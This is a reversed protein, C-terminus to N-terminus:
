SIARSAPCSPSWSQFVEFSEHNGYPYWGQWTENISGSFSLANSSRDRFIGVKDHFIGSGQERVGFRIEMASEAVLVALLEVAPLALPFALIRVLEREVAEDIVNRLALGRKIADVDEASLEPSCLLRIRGGRLAFGATSAGAISFFSSRFFGVARDYAVAREMAPEYFDGILDDRSTSYRASWEHARLDDSPAPAQV